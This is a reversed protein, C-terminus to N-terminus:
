KWQWDSDYDYDAPHYDFASEQKILWDLREQEERKLEATEYKDIVGHLRKIEKELDRVFPEDLLNCTHTYDYRYKRMLEEARSM